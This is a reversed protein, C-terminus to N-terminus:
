PLVADKSEPEHPK